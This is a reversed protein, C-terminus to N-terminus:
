CRVPPGRRLVSTALALTYRAPVDSCTVVGSRLPRLAPFPSLRRPLVRALAWSLASVALDAHRLAAATVLTVAAHMGLMAATGLMAANGPHPPHLLVMLEHLVFQGAALTAVTGFAGRCAGAASVFVTALLPLLVLLVALDPVSGGGAVHGVATLLASLVATATGRMARGRRM